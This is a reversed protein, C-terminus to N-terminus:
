PEALGPVQRVAAPIEGKGELWPGVSSYALKAQNRVVAQYVESRTARGSADVIIEIVVAPRDEDAVLSTLDTSLREPLMPFIRPPTYISTTNTEAHLDLASGLPVAGSVDAVAVLIGGAGDSRAAAVTLQDLDRSDDNDISCWPLKRLDRVAADDPIAPSAAMAQAEALADPPFDPQLGRELMAKRAVRLLLARQTERTATM